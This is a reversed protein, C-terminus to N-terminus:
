RKNQRVLSDEAKYKTIKNNELSLSLKGIRRGQWSSRVLLTSGVKTFPDESKRAHAVVVIDIGPIEKILKLDENEGLHSLLLVLKAGKSKVEEVVKGVASKLDIFEVDGAKQKASPNTAGVIAIKVGSVEKIIYPLVKSLKINASVFDLRTKAINEELFKAGFNFEDDGVVAADYQMLEMAKLNILSRAMDLPTNQTYGDMLGGGLFGGADVLITNPNEKRIQKILTARRSVGGDPEIPCDCHYLMAHTDGSYVITIEQAYALYSVGWFFLLFLIKRLIM